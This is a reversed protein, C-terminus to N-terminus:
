NTNMVPKKAKRIRSWGRFDATLKKGDEIVLDRVILRNQCDEIKAIGAIKAIRAIGQVM